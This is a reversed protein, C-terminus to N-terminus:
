YLVTLKSTITNHISLFQQLIKKLIVKNLSIIEFFDYKKFIIKIISYVVTQMSIINM